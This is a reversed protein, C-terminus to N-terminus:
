PPTAIGSHPRKETRMPALGTQNIIGRSSWCIV